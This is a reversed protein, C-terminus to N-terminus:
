ILTDVAPLLSRDAGDFASRSQRANGGFSEFRSSAFEYIGDGDRDKYVTVERGRKEFEIRMFTARDKSLSFREDRDPRELQWRGDDWEYVNLKGGTLSDVKYSDEKSGPKRGLVETKKFKFIGDGNKDKYVDRTVIGDDKETITFTSGDRSLKFKEQRGPRDVEWRGDDREYATFRGGGHPKIKYIDSMISCQYSQLKIHELIEACALLGASLIVHDQVVLRSSTTSVRTFTGPGRCVAKAM